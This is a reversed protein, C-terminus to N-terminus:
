ERSIVSFQHTCAIAITIKTRTEGCVPAIAFTLLNLNVDQVGRILVSTKTNNIFM